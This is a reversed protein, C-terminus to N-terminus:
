VVETEVSEGLTLAVGVKGLTIRLKRLAVTDVEGEDLNHDSVSPDGALTSFFLCLFAEAHEILLVAARDRELVDLCHQNLINRSNCLILDLVEHFLNIGVVVTM